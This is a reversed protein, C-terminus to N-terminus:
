FRSEALATPGLVGSGALQSVRSSAFTIKGLEGIFLSQERIIPSASTALSTHYQTLAYPRIGRSKPSKRLSRDALLASASVAFRHARTLINWDPLLRFGTGLASALNNPGNELRPSQLFQAIGAATEPVIRKLAFRRTKAM